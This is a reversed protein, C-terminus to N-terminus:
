NPCFMAICNYSSQQGANQSCNASDSWEMLAHTFQTIILLICSLHNMIVRFSFLENWLNFCVHVYVVTMGELFFFSVFIKKSFRLSPKDYDVQRLAFLCPSNGNGM